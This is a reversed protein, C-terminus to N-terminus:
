GSSRCPSCGAGSSCSRESCCSFRSRARFITLNVATTHHAAVYFLGNFATFGFVGMLVLTLWRTGLIPWEALGAPRRTAGHVIVM